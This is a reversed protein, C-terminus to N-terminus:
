LSEPCRKLFCFNCRGLDVTNVSANEFARVFASLVVSVFAPVFDCLFANM